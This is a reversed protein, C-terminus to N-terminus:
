RCTVGDPPVHRSSICAEFLAYSDSCSACAKGATCPARNTCARYSCTKPLGPLPDDCFGDYTGDGCDSDRTCTGGIARGGTVGSEGCKSIESHPVQACELGSACPLMIKASPVACIDGQGATACPTTGCAKLSVSGCRAAGAAGECAIARTTSSNSLQSCGTAVDCAEGLIPACRMTETCLSSVCNENALCAEGLKRSSNPYCTAQTRGDFAACFLNAGCADVGLDLCCAESPGRSKAQTCTGPDGSSPGGGAKVGGGGSSTQTSSGGASCAALLLLASPIIRFQM